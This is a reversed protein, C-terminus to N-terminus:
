PRQGGRREEVVIIRDNAELRIGELGVALEVSGDHVRGLVLSGL